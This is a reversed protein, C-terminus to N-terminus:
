LGHRPGGRKRSRHIGQETKVVGFVTAVWAVAKGREKPTFFPEFIHRKVEDNMGTGNDSVALM